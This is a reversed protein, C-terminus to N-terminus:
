NVTWQNVLCVSGSFTLLRTKRLSSGEHDTWRQWTLLKNTLPIETVTHTPKTRDGTALSAQEPLCSYSKNEALSYFCFRM